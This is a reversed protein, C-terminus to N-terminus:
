SVASRSRITAAAVRSEVGEVSARKAGVLPRATSHQCTTRPGVKLPYCSVVKVVVVVNVRVWALCRAAFTM